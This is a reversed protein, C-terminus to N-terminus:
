AHNQTEAPPHDSDEVLSPGGCATCKVVDSRDRHPGWGCNPCQEWEISGAGNGELHHERHEDALVAQLNGPWNAWPINCEVHHVHQNPGLADLGHEAVFLLRHIYVTDDRGGARCRIYEYGEGTHQISLPM